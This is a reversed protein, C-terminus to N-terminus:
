AVFGKFFPSFFNVLEPVTSNCYKNKHHWEALMWVQRHTDRLFNPLGGTCTAPSHTEMPNRTSAKGPRSTPRQLTPRAHRFSTPQCLLSGEHRHITSKAPKLPVTRAFDHLGTYAHPTCGLLSQPPRHLGQSHPGTSRLDHLGTHGPPHQGASCLYHTNPDGTHCAKPAHGPLPPIPCAQLPRLPM